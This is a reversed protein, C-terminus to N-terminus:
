APATSLAGANNVSNTVQAMISEEQTFAGVVDTIQEKLMNFAENSALLGMLAGFGHEVNSLTSSVNDVGNLVIEMTTDSDAM